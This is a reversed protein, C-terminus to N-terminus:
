LTVQSFLVVYFCFSYEHPQAIQLQKQQKGVKFSVIYIYLANVNVNVNKQPLNFSKHFWSLVAAFTM